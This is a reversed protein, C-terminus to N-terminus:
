RKFHFKKIFNDDKFINIFKLFHYDESNDTLYKEIEKLNDFKPTLERKKWDKWYFM